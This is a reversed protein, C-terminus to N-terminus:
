EAPMPMKRTENGGPKVQMVGAGFVVGSQRPWNGAVVAGQFRNGHGFGDVIQQGYEVQLREFVIKEAAAARLDAPLADKAALHDTLRQNGGQSGDFGVAGGVGQVAIEHPRAIRGHRDDVFDVADAVAFAEDGATDDGDLVAM